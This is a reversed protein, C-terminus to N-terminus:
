RVATKTVHLGPRGEPPRRQTPLARGMDRTHQVIPDRSTGERAVGLISETSIRMMRTQSFKVHGDAPHRTCTRHM